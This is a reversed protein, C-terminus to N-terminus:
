IFLCVDEVIFTNDPKNKCTEIFTTIPFSDYESPSLSITTKIPHECDADRIVVEVYDPLKNNFRIYSILKREAVNAMPYDQLNNKKTIYLYNKVSIPNDNIWIMVIPRFINETQCIVNGYVKKVSMIKTTFDYLPMFVSVREHLKFPAVENSYKNKFIRISKDLASVEKREFDLFSELRQVIRNFEIESKPCELTLISSAMFNINLYKEMQRPTLRAIEVFDDKINEKNCERYLKINANGSFYDIIAKDPSGKYKDYVDKHCSVISAPNM